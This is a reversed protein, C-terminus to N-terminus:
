KPAAPECDAAPPFRWEPHLRQLSGLEAAGYGAPSGCPLRRRIFADITRAARAGEPTRDTEYWLEYLIRRRERPTYREDSWLEELREPLHELASKMDEKRAAIAMRIRFEFTSSLFRAKERAYPDQKFARMIEDTLDFSGKVQVTLPLLQMNCSSLPPCVDNWDITHPPPDPEPVYGPEPTRRRGKNFYDRLTSELTPGKPRPASKIAAATPWFELSSIHKDKFTVVGDRAVQAEFQASEYVYGEGQRRLGYYAEEALDVRKSRPLWPPPGADRGAGADPNPSAGLAAFVVLCTLNM